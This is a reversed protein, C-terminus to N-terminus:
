PTPAENNVMKAQQLTSSLDAQQQQPLSQLVQPADKLLGELMTSLQGVLGKLQQMQGGQSELISAYREGKDTYSLKIYDALFSDKLATQSVLPWDQQMKQILENKQIVDVDGAARISYMKGITAVDNIYKMKPKSTTPDVIPQGPLMPNMVPVQILLFKIKNQLAQSQCIMWCYSYVQRVFTSFLTLQVSNLLQQQQEAAGIEKATKRSDERNMAAFNVQNTEESNAVDNYQLTRLVLADPYPPSWFKVPRNMFRGPRMTLDAVEKLSSGTGDEEAPSAYINTARNMGNIFSSWLATMAEQKYSDLFGRGKSEVLRAEETIRYHQIFIPYLKMPRPAPTNTQSNIDDIGCYFPIPKKLWDSCGNELSFWGVQVVGLKKFYCKYIRITEAEKASDKRTQRILDIQAADFGYKEVWLQLQLITVDYARCIRPCQQLDIASRPYFLKDHGIQEIAFHGPKDEDYAVEVADTGHLQAGDLCKYFSNEWAEYTAKKTFESEIRDTNQDPDDLCEMIVIRRSNKLYNIYPPQERAINSDIIRQPILTEDEDLEGRQRLEEANIEVKREKRRAESYNVEETWDDILRKLHIKAQTFDFLKDQEDGTPNGPLTVVNPASTTSQPTSQTAPADM